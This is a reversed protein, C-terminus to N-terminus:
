CMCVMMLVTVCIDERISSVVVHPGEAISDKLSMSIRESSELKLFSTIARTVERRRLSREKEGEVISLRKVRGGVGGPVVADM